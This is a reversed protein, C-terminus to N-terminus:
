RLGQANGPYIDHGQIGKEDGFIEDEFDFDNEDTAKKNVAENPEGDGGDSFDVEDFDIQVADGGEEESWDAGMHEYGLLLVQLDGQTESKRLDYCRVPCQGSGLGLDVKLSITNEEICVALTVIKPKMMKKSPNKYEPLGEDTVRIHKSLWDETALQGTRPNYILYREVKLLEAHKQSLKQTTVKKMDPDKELAKELADKALGVRHCHQMLSRAIAGAAEYPLAKWDGKSDQLIPFWM